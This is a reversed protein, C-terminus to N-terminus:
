PAELLARMKRLIEYYQPGAQLVAEHTLFLIAGPKAASFHPINLWAQLQNQQLRSDLTSHPVLNIVRDPSVSLLAEHTLKPYVPQKLQIANTGGALVLLENLFSSPGAVYVQNITQQKAEHSVVMLVRPQTALPVLSQVVADVKARWATVQATRDLTEGLTQMTTNIDAINTNALTLTRLGLQKLKQITGLHEPLAIVLDPKLVVILELNPDQYGGIRRIGSPQQPLACYDTVGVLTTAADLELVASTLSPALSIVREPTAALAGWCLFVLWSRMM